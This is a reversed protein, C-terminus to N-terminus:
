KAGVSNMNAQAAVLRKSNEKAKYLLAIVIGNLWWFPMGIYLEHLFFFGISFILEGVTTSLVFMFYRENYRRLLYAQRVLLFLFIYHFFFGVIGYSVLIYVADIELFGTYSVTNSGIGFVYNLPDTNMFNFYNTIQTGRGETTLADESKEFRKELFATQEPLYMRIAFFAGTILAMTFILTRILAGFKRKIIIANIMQIIVFSTVLAIIGARSAAAMINIAALFSGMVRWTHNHVFFYFYYFVIICVGAWSIIAGATGFVRGFRAFNKEQTESLVYYKVSLETINGFDFYQLLGVVLGCIFVISIISILVRRRITNFSVVYLFYVFVWVKSVVVLPRLTPKFGGDLFYVAGIVDSFVSLVLLVLSIRVFLKALPLTKIKDWMLFMIPFTFIQVIRDLRLSSTSGVQIAPVLFSIIMLIALAAVIKQVKLM